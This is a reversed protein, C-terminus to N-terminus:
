LYLTIPLKERVQMHQITVPLLLTFLGQRRCNLGIADADAFEATLGQLPMHAAANKVNQELCNKKLFGKSFHRTRLM